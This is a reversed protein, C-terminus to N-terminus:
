GTPEKLRELAGQSSAGAERNVATGIALGREIRTRALRAMSKNSLCSECLPIRQVIGSRTAVLLQDGPTTLMDRIEGDVTTIKQTPLINTTPHIIVTGDSYGYAFLAGDTSIASAEALPSDANDLVTTFEWNSSEAPDEGRLVGVGTCGSLGTGSGVPAIVREDRSVAIRIISGGCDSSSIPQVGDSTRVAFLDAATDSALLMGHKPMARVAFVGPPAIFIRREVKREPVSVQLLKGDVCPLFLTLPDMFTARGLNCGPLHMLSPSGGELPVIWLGKEGSLAAVSGDAAAGGSLIEDPVQLRGIVKGSDVDIKRLLGNRAVVWASSRAAAPLLAEFQGKEIDLLVSGDRAKWSTVLGKGLAWLRSGDRSWALDRIPGLAGRLTTRVSGLGLDAIEVFSSGAAALERGNPSLKLVLPPQSFAIRRWIAGDRWVEVIGTRPERRLRLGTAVAPASAPAAASVRHSSRKGRANALRQWLSHRPGVVVVESGVEPEAFRRAGTPVSFADDPVGPAFAEELVSAETASENGGLEGAMQLGEYPDDSMGALANVSRAFAEAQFDNNHNSMKLTQNAIGSILIGGVITLGVLVSVLTRRRSRRRSARLFDRETQNPPRNVGGAALRRRTRRSALANRKRGGKDWDRALVALETHLRQEPDLGSIAQSTKAAALAPDSDVAVVLRQKRWSGALDSEAGCNASERSAQSDCVLFLDAAAVADHIDDLWPLTLPIDRQDLWVTHGSAELRTVLDTVWETDSRSYSVFVHHM